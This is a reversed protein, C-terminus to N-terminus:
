EYVSVIYLDKQNCRECYSEYYELYEDEKIKTYKKFKHGFISCLIKNNFM